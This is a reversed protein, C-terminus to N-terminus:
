KDRLGVVADRIERLCRLHSETWGGAAVNGNAAAPQTEHEDGLGASRSNRWAALILDRVEEANNIGELLGHHGAITVGEHSKVAAGGGATEVLVDAIDFYRQVPGQRVSVNQINEYTITTEHIEWIGRRIRMTRDSLVYWTTDYRLHIAIYAVIDPLIIIAWALPAVLIGVLPMAVVLAIWAVILGLDIAVLGIWFYFKLYGLFGEAPRFSQTRHDISGALTPPREPVKLWETIVGWVGSYCWKSARLVAENPIVIM